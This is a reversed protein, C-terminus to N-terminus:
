RCAVILQGPSGQVLGQIWMTVESVGDNDNDDTNNDNDNANVM